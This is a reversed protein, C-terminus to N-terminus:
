QNARSRDIYRWRELTHLAIYSRASQEDEHAVYSLHGPAVELTGRKILVTRTHGAILGTLELTDAIRM